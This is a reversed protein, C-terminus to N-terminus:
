YLISLAALSISASAILATAGTASPVLFTAFDVTKKGFYDPAASNVDVGAFANIDYTRYSLIFDGSTDKTDLDRQLKGTWAVCATYPTNLTWTESCLDGSGKDTVNDQDPTSDLTIDAISSPKIDRRWDTTGMGM